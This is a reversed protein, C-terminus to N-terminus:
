TPGAAGRSCSLPALIRGHKEVKRFPQDVDNGPQRRDPHRMHHTPENLSHVRPPTVGDPRQRDAREPNHQPLANAPSLSSTERWRDSNAHSNLANTPAQSASTTSANSRTLAATPPGDTLASTRCM